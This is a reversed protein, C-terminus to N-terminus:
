LLLQHLLLENNHSYILGTHAHRKTHRHTNRNITVHYILCKSKPDSLETM